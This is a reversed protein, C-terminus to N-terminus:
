PEANLRRGRGPPVHEAVRDGIQLDSPPRGDKRTQADQHRHQRDVVHAVAQAVGKVGVHASRLSV